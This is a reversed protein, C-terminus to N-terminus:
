LKQLTWHLVTAQSYIALQILRYNHYVSYLIKSCLSIILRVYMKLGTQETSPVKICTIICCKSIPNEECHASAPMPTSLLPPKPHEFGGDGGSIGFARWFQALSL